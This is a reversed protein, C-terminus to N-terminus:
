HCMFDDMTLVSNRDNEDNETLRGRSVISSFTFYSVRHTCREHAAQMVNEM